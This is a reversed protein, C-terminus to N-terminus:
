DKYYSMRVEAQWKLMVEWFGSQKSLCQELSPMRHIYADTVGDDFIGGSIGDERFVLLPLKLSFMIGSELNNWPSAYRIENARKEEATGPKLTVNTAIQQTFGLVLGGSCKRAIRAVETLPLETPYDSRGLARRELNFDELLALIADYIAQQDKNLQTPASVFVPIKM